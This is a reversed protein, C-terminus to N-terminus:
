ELEWSLESEPIRYLGAQADFPIRYRGSISQCENRGRVKIKLPWMNLRSARRDFSWTSTFQIADDMVRAAEDGCRVPLGSEEHTQWRAVERIGGPGAAMIRVREVGYDGYEVGHELVFGYKRRGIRMVSVVEPYGYTGGGSEIGKERVVVELAGSTNMRMVYLDLIGGDPHAGSELAGCVALLRYEGVPSAEACVWRLYTGEPGAEEWEGKGAILGPAPRQPYEAKLFVELPSGRRAGAMGAVANAGVSAGVANASLVLFLSLVFPPLRRMM